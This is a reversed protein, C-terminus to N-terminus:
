CDSVGVALGAAIPVQRDAERLANGSGGGEEITKSDKELKSERWGAGSYLRGDATRRESVSEGREEFPM